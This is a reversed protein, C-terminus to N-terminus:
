PLVGRSPPFPEPRPQHRNAHRVSALMAHPERMQLPTTRPRRRLAGSIANPTTCRHSSSSVSRCYCFLRLDALMRSSPYDASVQRAIAEATTEADGTVMVVKVGAERLASVAPATSVRPPDAIAVLGVLTLRDLPFNPEPDSAFAFGPPFDSLPLSRECLALVRQGQRGLSELSAALLARSSYQLSVPAGADDYVATCLRLLFDPAGKVFVTASGDAINVSVCAAQVDLACPNLRPESLVCSVCPVCAIRAQKTVSSFPISLERRWHPLEAAAGNSLAWSMLAKDTGNGGVVLPTASPPADLNAPTQLVSDNCLVAVRTLRDLAAHTCRNAGSTADSSPPYMGLPEEAAAIIKASPGIVFKVVTM